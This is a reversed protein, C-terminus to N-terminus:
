GQQNNRRLERLRSLYEGLRKEVGRDTPHYYERLRPLNQQSTVADPFKHAYEYGQGAKSGDAMEPQHPDRLYAPVQFTRGQQIDKQAAWLAKASANSKPALALYTTCQALTLQAEPMGIREVVSFTAAALELARPDANGIDESALISLRRAIFRPDEGAELMMALWYIAADPDSARVSKIFASITDYHQDGTGSYVIAKAQISEQAVQLDIVITEEPSTQSSLVAVELASLARRADGDSIRAWHQVAEDRLEINLKGYGRKEDAAARRVLVAIDDESLPEFRFLTSRSVLASNVTFYPNETTAGILILLGAEVDGLLVDQQAKNFRHIEDLFLITRRDTEGLLREADAILSRIQKVGIMSANAQHFVADVHNAILRALTTKGTGPPGHFLFSTMTGSNLMRRLLKGEGLIHEQGVFEQLSGPRMRAALPRVGKKRLERKEAWLDPM